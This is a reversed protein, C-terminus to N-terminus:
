SSTFNTNHGWLKCWFKCGPIFIIPAGPNFGQPEAEEIFRNLLPCFM